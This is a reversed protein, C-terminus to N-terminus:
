RKEENDFRWSQAFHVEVWEVICGEKWIPQEIVWGDRDSEYHLRLGDSARTHCMDINLYTHDEYINPSMLTITHHLPEETRKFTGELETTEHPKDM